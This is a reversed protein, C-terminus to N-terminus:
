RDDIIETSNLKSYAYKAVGILAAERGYPSQALQPPDDRLWENLDELFEWELSDKFHVWNHEVVGGSLVITRPLLVGAYQALFHGLRYGFHKGAEERTRYSELLQEYGFSGLSWWVEGHEPNETQKIRIAGFETPWGKRLRVLRGQYDTFALGASTGIAITLLPHEYLDAHAFLHAEVDNLLFVSPNSFAETFNARLPRNRWKSRTSFRCIGLDSDIFGVASVAIPLSRLVDPSHQSMLKDFVHNELEDWNDPLDFVNRNNIQITQEELVVIATKIGSGGIDISLLEM